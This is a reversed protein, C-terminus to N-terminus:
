VPKKVEFVPSNGAFPRPNIPYGDEDYTNWKEAGPDFAFYYAYPQTKMYEISYKKGVKYCKRKEDFAIIKKQILQEATMFAM